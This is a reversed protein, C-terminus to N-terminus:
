PLSSCLPGLFPSSLYGNPTSPLLCSCTPLMWFFSRMCPFSPPAGSLKWLGTVAMTVLHPDGSSSVCPWLLFGTPLCLCAPPCPQPQSLGLTPLAPQEHNREGREPSRGELLWPQWSGASNGERGPRSRPAAKTGSM